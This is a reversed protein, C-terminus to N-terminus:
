TFNFHQPDNWLAAAARSHDDIFVPFRASDDHVVVDAASNIRASFAFM